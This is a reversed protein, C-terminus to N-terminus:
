SKSFKVTKYKALSPALGFHLIYFGAHMDCAIYACILQIILFLVYLVCWGGYLLVCYWCFFSTIKSGISISRNEHATCRTSRSSYFNFSWRRHFSAVIMMSKGKKALFLTLIHSHYARDRDTSQTTSSIFRKNIRIMDHIKWIMILSRSRPRSRVTLCYWSEQKRELFNNPTNNSSEHRHSHQNDM